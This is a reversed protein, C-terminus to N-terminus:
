SPALLIRNTLAVFFREYEADELSIHPKQTVAHPSKELVEYTPALRLNPVALLVQVPLRYPWRPQQTDLEMPCEAGALTSRAVAFLRQKGAAYYILLDGSRISGPREPFRVHTLLDPREPLWADPLPDDGTGVPKLWADRRKAM